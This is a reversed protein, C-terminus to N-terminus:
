QNHIEWLEINSIPFLKIDKRTCFLNNSCRIKYLKIVQCFGWQLFSVDFVHNSWRHCGSSFDELVLVSTPYCKGCVLLVYIFSITEFQEVLDQRRFGRWRNKQFWKYILLRIWHCSYSRHIGYYPAMKVAYCIGFLCHINKFSHLRVFITHVAKAHHEYEVKLFPLAM